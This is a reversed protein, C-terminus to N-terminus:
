QKIFKEQSLVIGDAGSIKMMYLGKALKSIDLIASNDAQKGAFVRQGSVNFIEIVKQKDYGAVYVTLRDNAPNPFLVLKPKDSPAQVVPIENISATGLQVKLTYCNTANFAGNFGVVRAYYTNATATYNIVESTTGGNSSSAVNTNNRYLRLDYDATLNNLTLTITGGTTIVFKYYDVDGTPNILGYV